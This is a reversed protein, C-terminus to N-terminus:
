SCIGVLMQGVVAPIKLRRSVLTAILSAILVITLQLIDNM